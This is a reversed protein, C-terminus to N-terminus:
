LHKYDHLVNHFVRYLSESRLACYVSEVETVCFRDTLTTCPLNWVFSKFAVYAGHRIKKINFM